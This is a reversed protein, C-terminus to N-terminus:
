GYAILGQAKKMNNIHKEFDFVWTQDEYFYYSRLIYSIRNLCEDLFYHELNAVEEHTLTNAKLYNDIFAQARSIMKSKDDTNFLAFRFCAFSVDRIRESRKISEMDLFTELKGNNFLVNGPHLDRHIYQIPINKKNIGHHKKECDSYKEMLFAFHERVAKDLAGIGSESNAKDFIQNLESSDPHIYLPSPAANFYEMKDCNTQLIIHLKALEKAFDSLEDLNGDFIHGEHFELLYIIDENFETINDGSDNKLITPVKAGKESCCVFIKMLQKTTIKKSKRLIKCLVRKGSSFLIIENKSNISYGGAAEVKQITGFLSYKESILNCLEQNM